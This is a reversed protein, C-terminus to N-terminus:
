RELVGYQQKLGRGLRDLQDVKEQLAQGRSSLRGLEEVNHSITAAKVADLLGLGQDMMELTLQHHERCVQPPHVAAVAKRAHQQQEILDDFGGTDGAMSRNLVGTAFAQPDDISPSSATAKSLARFYAAVEAKEGSDVRPAPPDVPPPAIAPAPQPRPAPAPAADPAPPQSPPTVPRPASPPPPQYVPAAPPVSVPVPPPPPEVKLPQSPPEESTAPQGVQAVVPPRNSERGLLFFTALLSVVALGCLGLLLWRPITVNDNPSPEVKRHKEGPGAM